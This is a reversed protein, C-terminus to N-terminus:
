KVLKPCTVTAKNLKLLISPRLFCSFCDLYETQCFILSGHMLDPVLWKWHNLWCSDLVPQIGWNFFVSWLSLRKNRETVYQRITKRIQEKRSVIELIRIWLGVFLRHHLNKAFISLTKSSDAKKTSLGAMFTQSHESFTETAQLSFLFM